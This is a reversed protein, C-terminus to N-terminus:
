KINFEFTVVYNLFIYIKVMSKYYKCQDPILFEVILLRMDNVPVIITKTALQKETYIPDPWYPIDVDKKEIDSFLSIVLEELTNLDETCQIIFYIKFM